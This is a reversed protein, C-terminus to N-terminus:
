CDGLYCRMLHTKLLKKFSTESIDIRNRLSQPLSNWVAPAAHSFARDAYTKSGKKPVRLTIQKESRLSRSPSYVNILNNIYGPTSDNLYKFCMVAIKYLIRYEIPLWHLSYFLPTIHDSKKKKLVIRAAHNQIRQLKCLIIKPLNYMLSNCYDIRSFVFSSVLTKMSEQNLFMSLQSIRRLELFAIKCLHDIHYTMSLNSDFYIGLNKAKDTFYARKDDINIFNQQINVACKKPNCFLVETKDDNMKLKNIHMWKKVDNVCNEIKNVLLHVHCPYVSSYLQTDDAYFHYNVDHERLIEGLPQTYLTYLLPGLVSGQPVGYQLKLPPSQFENIIVSQTRNGIYSKFWNLVVGSLGFSKYLRELLISHDITDFAASLDLLAIISVKSEDAACLLDNQIKLLATETNHNRRYASQHPEHLNHKSLHEKLQNAVVKELIKSIYPLNSVPRYNKLEEPSLNKKKLLPTVIAHKFYPHVNGTLLSENIIDTICPLLTDINSLLLPTPIPDLCCTKPPSSKIINKVETETVPRFMKFQCDGEFQKHVPTETISNLSDRITKVKNRFYTGFLGPLEEPKVSTPLTRQNTETNSLANTISFLAKSTECDRIRSNYHEAKAEKTLQKITNIQERLIQRDVTLRTSRWKRELRRRQAKAEKITTTMWPASPRCTVVRTELPAHKDLLDRLNNNYATVKDECNTMDPIVDSLEKTFTVNDVKKRSTITRKSPKAREADAEFTITYHDSVGADIVNINSLQTSTDTLIWDLTHGKIHTPHAIHQIIDRIHLTSKM